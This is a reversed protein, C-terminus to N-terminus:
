NEIILERNEIRSKESLRNRGWLSFASFIAHKEAILMLFRGFFLRYESLIKMTKRRRSFLFCVGGVIKRLLDFFFDSSINADRDFFYMRRLCKRLPFDTLIRRDFIVATDTM